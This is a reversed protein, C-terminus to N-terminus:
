SLSSSHNDFSVSISYTVCNQFSPFLASVSKWISVSSVLQANETRKNPPIHMAECYTINLFQM